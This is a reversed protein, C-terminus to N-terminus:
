LRGLDIVGCVCASEMLPVVCVLPRWWHCCVCSRGGDIVGCAFITVLHVVNDLM